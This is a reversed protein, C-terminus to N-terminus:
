SRTGKVVPAPPRVRSQLAKLSTELLMAASDLSDCAGEAAMRESAGHLAAVSASMGLKSEAVKAIEAEAAGLRALAPTAADMVRRAEALRQPTSTRGFMAGRVLDDAEAVSLTTRQMPAAATRGFMTARQRDNAERLEAQPRESRTSM